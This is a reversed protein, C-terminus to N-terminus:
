FLDRLCQWESGTECTVTGKPPIGFEGEITVKWIKCGLRPYGDSCDVDAATSVATAAVADDSAPVASSVLIALVAAGALKAVRGSRFTEVVRKGM